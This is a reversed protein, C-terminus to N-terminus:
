AMVSFLPGRVEEEESALIRFEDDAEGGISPAISRHVTIDDLSELRNQVGAAFDPWLAVDSFTKRNERRSPTKPAPHTRLKPWPRLALQRPTLRAAATLVSTKLGDQQSFQLQCAFKLGILLSLWKCARRLVLRGLIDVCAQLPKSCNPNPM